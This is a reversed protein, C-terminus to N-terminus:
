NLRNQEQESFKLLQPYFELFTSELADRVPALQHEVETLPNGRRFRQGIRAATVTVTDWDHYLNLIDYDLMRGLMARSGPSLHARQTSLSEYVQATFSTLSLQSYLSWHKTLYHDFSLDILIGAYRRIERPFQTRLEVILPHEDTHADIARHLKVGREIGPHLEGRLLGKYYDGELGGAILGQDPWALHFHALFNV